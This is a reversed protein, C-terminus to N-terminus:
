PKYELVYVPQPALNELKEGREILQSISKIM